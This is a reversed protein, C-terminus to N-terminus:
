KSKHQTLKLILLQTLGWLGTRFFRAFIIVILAFVIMQINGVDRLWESGLYVLLAGILPGSMSGIGGIVVMSIVLGTQQLLGMEPSVLQSFSGYMAGAFGCLCCSITFAWLKYKAVPIGRSEAGEPDDRIALFYGGFRSKMLAYILLGMGFVFAVFVYYYVVRDVFMTPVNLGQDGRTYEHSNAIIVRAIEAFSLTTLSLYPGKLRIVITGLFLGLLGTGFIALPVAWSLSVQFHFDLLGMIYGGLMAFAAPAMSFQGTYGALLNWSMSIMAFYLAVILIGLSYDSLQLLPVLCLLLCVLTFCLMDRKLRNRWLNPHKLSLSLTDAM